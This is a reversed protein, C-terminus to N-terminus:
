MIGIVVKTIEYGYDGNFNVKTRIEELMKIIPKGRAELIWKNVSETFNNVVEYNKCPTLIPEVGRM